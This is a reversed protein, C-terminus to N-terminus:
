PGEFPRKVLGSFVRERRGEVGIPMDPTRLTASRSGFVKDWVSLLAAYNSDTDRRIAHHHVWHISPTVIVRSLGREVKPPLRLNSHHFMASLALLTEFVIVSTIPVGLLFIVLARVLSSMLVEGFHFRLASSADLFEDLHHVEHFRWLFPLEHNARHWWYIWIDLVLLDLLLGPVGGWWEPRWGLAHSAALASVPVVIAWSLGANIAALSLNKVVRTAGGIVKAVPIVRDLVLLLVLASLVVAGKYPLLLPINEM